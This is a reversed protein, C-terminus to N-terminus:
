RNNRKDLEDCVATLETKLAALKREYEDRKPGPPMPTPTEAKRISQYQLMNQAKTISSRLASRRKSLELDTMSGVADRLQNSQMQPSASAEVMTPQEKWPAALLERIDSTVRERAPGDELKFWAEKLQYLRNSRVIAPKRGDLIKKRKRVVDDANSTGLDYLERHRKDILAYLTSVEKKAALIYPPLQTGATASTALPTKAMASSDTERSQESQRPQLSSFNQTEVPRTVSPATKVLKGIEYVLKDMRFRATGTRFYRVLARNKSYKAFLVVGAAYDRNPDNIWSQIENM